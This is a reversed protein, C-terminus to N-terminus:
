ELSVSALSKKNRRTPLTTVRQLWKFPLKTPIVSDRWTSGSASNVATNMLVFANDDARWSGHWFKQGCDMITEGGILGKAQPGSSHCRGRGAECSRMAYHRTKVSARCLRWGFRVWPGALRPESRQWKKAPHDQAFQKVKRLKLKRM